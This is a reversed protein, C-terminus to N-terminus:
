DDYSEIVADPYEEWELLTFNDTQINEYLVRIAIILTLLYDADTSWGFNYQIGAPSHLVGNIEEFFRITYNRLPSINRSGYISLDVDMEDSTMNYKFSNGTLYYGKQTCNQTNITDPLVCVGNGDQYGKFTCLCLLKEASSEGEVVEYTNIIGYDAVIMALNTPLPIPQLLREM